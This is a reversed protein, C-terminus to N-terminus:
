TNKNIYISKLLESIFIRIRPNCRHKRCKYRIDNVCIREKETSKIAKLCLAIADELRNERKALKIPEIYRLYEAM